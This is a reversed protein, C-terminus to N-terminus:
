RFSVGVRLLDLNDTWASAGSLTQVVHLYELRLGVRPQLWFNAGVGVNPGNYTNSYEGTSHTFGARVFPVIRRTADRLEFLGDVAVTSGYAELGVEAGAGVRGAILVEGGAAIAGMPGSAVHNSYRGKGLVGYGQVTQAHAVSTTLVTLLTLAGALTRSGNM